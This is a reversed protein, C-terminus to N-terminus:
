KNVLRQILNRNDDSLKKVKERLSIIEQRYHDYIEEKKIEKRAEKSLEDNLRKGWAVKKLQENLHDIESNAMGLGVKLERMRRVVYAVMEDKGYNKRLHILVNEDDTM